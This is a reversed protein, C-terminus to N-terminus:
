LVLDYCAVIRMFQRITLELGGVCWKSGKMVETERWGRAAGAQAPVDGTGVSGRGLSPPSTCRM